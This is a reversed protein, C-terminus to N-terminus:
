PMERHFFSIVRSTYEAPRDHFGRVHESGMVVWTDKVNKGGAQVLQKFESISVLSDKEDHILFLKSEGVNTIARGPDSQDVDIGFLLKASFKIGPWLFLPLGSESTFRENLVQDFYAWSSEVVAAKIDRTQELALLTTAGGMSWGVAGIHEPRFGRAKVYNLAALVDYKEYQGFSMRQGDSAGQGRTDFMILNFGQEWMAHGFPLLFTRTGDKAHVLILVQESGEKPIWWGKINMKAQDSTQFTINEYPMNYTAPTDPGLDRTKTTTFVNAGYISIGSYVLILLVALGLLTFRFVPRKYFPKKM